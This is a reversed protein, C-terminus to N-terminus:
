GPPPHDRPLLASREAAAALQRDATVLIADYGVALALYCADYASMRRRTAFALAQRALLRTPIVDLALSVVTGLAEDRDDYGLRGTRVYVALANATEAFLIGPVLAVVEGAMVAAVWARAAGEREVFARV